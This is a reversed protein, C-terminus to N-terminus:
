QVALSADVMGWGFDGDRGPYISAAQKMRTLVQARTQGPNTAWVLAAVGATTATAASSGGVYGPNADFRSLTISTRADNNRRQMVAIFDVQSGDHCIDCRKLPLGERVGTVAVTRSLNAPFIVGWWSTWSLSTGAAAVIMKGHNYAYDIGDEVTGSHFVDGISMSIVRTGADRGADILANKVGRKENGGNVVVDSTARYTRLNAKYAVGVSAGTATRPGAALGAMQTGHGCQDSPGDTRSSWWNPAYTGKKAIARGTSQGGDFNSGLNSQEPFVGTDIIAIGIGAGQSRGWAQRINMADFNWPVKAGPPITNFDAPDINDSPAESCGLGARLDVEGGGYNGPEFYRVDPRGRFEAVIGPHLANFEIIPLVLDPSTVLLDEETIAEGTLRETAELLDTILEERTTKWAGATVDITHITEKLGEFGAPQYGLAVQNQSAELASWVLHDDADTNWDFPRDNANLSAEVTANIASKTLPARTQEVNVLDPAALDDSCNFLALALACCLYIKKM